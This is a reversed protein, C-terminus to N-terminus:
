ASHTSLKKVLREATLLNVGLNEAIDLDIKGSHVQSLIQAGSIKQAAYKGTRFVTELENVGANTLNFTYKKQSM